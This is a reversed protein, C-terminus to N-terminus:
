QPVAQVTQYAELAPRAIAPAFLPAAENLLLHHIRNTIKTPDAFEPLTLTISKRDAAITVASIEAKRKENQGSGYNMADTYTWSELQLKPLLSEATASAALPTTFHVTFGTKDTTIRLIDAPTVTPDHIIRQLSAESGGKARWGRGTQGLLLSGDPLFSPRMVGSALGRAFLIMTGQDAEGVRETAVRLLTSLTQDGVFMQGSFPGFKGGTLDWVPSGPSNAYRNHPFWLAHRQTKPQWKEFAIEPSGIKMGPLTILGSPHGYFGDKVLYFIKSSGVYEGQNETYVLRGDPDVALGAPSRLGNAFPKFTGDPTVLCAWGRFGGMSGMFQGGAKYSAKENTQSHSLNLLFHYNGEADRVPGHTYEHYNGHFGFDDCLTELTDARGDGNTDRLRSIEPKQAIVITSGTDDEIVLGLCEYTGEAFLSWTNNKWRWIGATRTGVVVTGDKAVAIATPEFLQARGFTDKPADWNEISYGAPLDAEAPSTTAPQPELNEKVGVPARAILPSGLNATLTATTTGAPLTWRNDALTGSTTRIDKLGDARLQFTQPTSFTGSLAIVLSGDDAFSIKQSITNKGIRFSFVPEGTASISYGEFDADWSGLIKLFDGDNALHRIVADDDNVDPEKFEFDVAKGDATLPVLVPQTDLVDRAGQGRQSGPLGRGTQEKELNLFGGSWVGRLSLHRPDFTYNMGNPLGVHISRASTGTVPARIVRPRQDVLVAARNEFEPKTVEAAVTGMVVAPGSKGPEAATALYHWIADLNADSVVEATFQPMVPPYAEGKTPGSEAYALHKSPNRVSDLYYAKDARVTIKEGTAPDLVERDRAPTQFVNYLTPGSKISADNKDVAHCTACGWLQYAQAGKEVLNVQEAHLPALLVLPALAATRKM